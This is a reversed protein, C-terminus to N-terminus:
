SDLTTFRYRKWWRPYRYFINDDGIRFGILYCTRFAISIDILLDIHVKFNCLESRQGITSSVDSEEYSQKAGTINRENQWMKIYQTLIDQWSTCNKHRSKQGWSPWTKTIKKITKGFCQTCKKECALLVTQRMKECKTRTCILPPSADRLCSGLCCCVANEAGLMNIILKSARGGTM